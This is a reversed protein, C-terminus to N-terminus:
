DFSNKFIVDNCQYVQQPDIMVNFRGGPIPGGGVDINIGDFNQNFIRWRSGDYYIGINHPNQVFLPGLFWTTSQTVMPLACPNNNLLPHDLITTHSETNEVSVEHHYVNRSGDQNYIFFQAGTLMNVEDANGLYWKNNSTQYGIELPHDNYIGSSIDWYNSAFVGADFKNNLFPDDLEFGSASGNLAGYVSLGNLLNGTSGYPYYIHFKANVPINVGTDQNFIRWKEASRFIGISQNNYVGDDDLYNWVQTIITVANPDSDLGDDAIDTTNFSPNVAKHYIHRDGWEYAGADIDSGKYRRLGDADISPSGMMFGTGYLLSTGTSSVIDIAPSDSRLAYNVGEEIFSPTQNLDSGVFSLGPTSGHNFFVNNGGSTVSTSTGTPPGDYAINTNVIINNFMNITSSGNTIHDNFNFGTSVNATNRKVGDITNNGFIGVFNGVEIESLLTKNDSDADIVTNGDIVGTILNSTLGLKMSASVKNAQRLYIQTVAGRMENGVVQVEITGTDINEIDLLKSFTDPSSDLKILHNDHINVKMLGDTYHSIQILPVGPGNYGDSVITNQKINVLTNINFSLVTIGEKENSANDPNSWTNSLINIETNGSLEVYIDSSQEFQFKQVTVKQNTPVNIEMDMNRFIPKFGVGASLFLEKDISLTTEAIVSNLKVTVFGPISQANICAQLTGACAGTGPWDVAQSNFCMVLMLMSLISGGSLNENNLIRM